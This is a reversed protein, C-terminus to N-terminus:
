RCQCDVGVLADAPDRGPDIFLGPLQLAERGEVLPHYGNEFAQACILANCVRKNLHIGCLSENGTRLGFDTYTDRM